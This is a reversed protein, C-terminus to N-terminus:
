RRLLRRARVAFVTVGALLLISLTSPEPIAARGGDRIAAIQAASLVENYVFVNDISGQWGETTADPRIGGIAATTQAGNFTATNSFSQVAEAHTTADPDIYLIVTGSSSANGTYTMAMFVWTPPTTYTPTGQIINPSATGTFATYRFPFGGIANPGRNDLGMVPDFQGNDTGFWKYLGSALNPDALVWAGITFGTITNFNVGLAFNDSGAYHFTGGEYGGAAQYVPAGFNLALTTNNGSDDHRPDAANDFSYFAVLDAKASSLQTAIFISLIAAFYIRARNAQM